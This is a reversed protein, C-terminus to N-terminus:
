EVTIDKLNTKVKEKFLKLVEAKDKVKGALYSKMIDDFAKEVTDDYPTLVKGNISDVFPEYFKFVNTGVIKSDEPAGEAIVAKNNPFDQNAIAWDKMTANDSTFFKVFEWALDAKETKSYIGFWTGGWFYTFPPKCVGWRGGQEAKKDNSGIIWPIGWTPIAWCMAQEDNAISSAWGPSWQDLALEYKETRITKAFDILEDVKPDIVLKNDVVWGESRGGLYMKKAEEWSPFLAVKGGSKEKLIKATELMKEKSSLMEAIAAPDDTGLYKKAVAKKFGLSGAAAQHSLARIAGSKDTGVDITYNIMNGKISAAKETLDLFADPMEVFRKVFASEAPFVDPVGQGARIASTLKNQFQQDKDPVISLNVKINPYVKNFAEVIKPGEDKNFHWFTIEGKLDAPNAASPSAEPVKSAEASAVPASPSTTPDETDGGCAAFTGAMMFVCVIIALLKKFKKM